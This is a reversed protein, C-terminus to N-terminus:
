TIEIEELNQENETEIEQEPEEQNEIIIEKEKFMFQDNEDIYCELQLNNTEINQSLFSLLASDINKIYKEADNYGAHDKVAKKSINEIFDDSFEVTNKYQKYYKERKESLKDALIYAYEEETFDEFKIHESNELIVKNDKRKNSILIVTKSVDLEEHEGTTNNYLSLVGTKRAEELRDIVSQDALNEFVLTTGTNNKLKRM